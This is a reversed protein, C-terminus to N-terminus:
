QTATIEQTASSPSAAVEWKGYRRVFGSGNLLNAITGRPIGSKENITGRTSPGNALLFKELQERRTGQAEDAGGNTAVRTALQKVDRHPEIQGLTSVSGFEELLMSKIRELHEIRQNIVEVAKRIDQNM